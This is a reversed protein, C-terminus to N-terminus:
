WELNSFEEDVDDTTPKKDKTPRLLKYKTSTATTTESPDDLALAETEIPESTAAAYESSSPRLYVVKEDPFAEREMNVGKMPSIHGKKFQTAKRAQLGKRIARGKRIKGMNTILIVNFKVINVKNPINNKNLVGTYACQQYAQDIIIHYTAKYCSQTYFRKMKTVETMRSLRYRYAFLCGLNGLYLM